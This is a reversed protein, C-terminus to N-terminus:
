FGNTYIVQTVRLRIVHFYLKLIKIGELHVKLSVFDLIVKLGLEHARTFLEQLDAMTGFLPDVQRYDQVDYGGDYMPSRFVPGLWFGDVGLDVLYDLSNIIGRIDGVGDGDSDRFSRPYIEYFTGHEWWDLEQSTIM